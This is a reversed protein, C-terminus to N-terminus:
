AKSAIIHIDLQTHPIPGIITRSGYISRVIFVTAVLLRADTRPASRLSCDKDVDRTSDM